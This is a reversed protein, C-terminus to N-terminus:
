KQQSYVMLLVEDYDSKLRKNEEELEAVRSRLSGADTELAGVRQSLAEKCRRLEECERQARELAGRLVACDDAAQPQGASGPQSATAAASCGRSGKDGGDPANSSAVDRKPEATTPRAPAEDGTESAAGAPAQSSAPTCLCGCSRSPCSCVAPCFFTEGINHGAHCREICVTCYLRAGAVGDCDVCRSFTQVRSCRFCFSGRAAACTASCRPSALSTCSGSQRMAVVARDERRQLTALCSSLFSHTRSGPAQESLRQRVVAVSEPMQVGMSRLSSSLVWLMNSSNELVSSDTPHNVMAETVAPVAGSKLLPEQLDLHTSVLRLLSTAWQQVQLTQPVARMASVLPGLGDYAVLARIGDSTCMGVLALIASHTLTPNSRHAALTMVAARVAGDSVAVAAGEPVSTSVRVISLLGRNQVTASKPFLELSSVITAVGGCGVIEAAVERTGGLVSLAELAYEHLLSSKITEMAKLIVEAGRAKQILPLCEPSKCLISLATVGNTQIGNSVHNRMASVIAGIAGSSSIVTSLDKRWLLTNCLILTGQSQVPTSLPYQAMKQVVAKIADCEVLKDAVGMGVIKSLVKAVEVDTACQQLEALVTSMSVSTRQRKPPSPLEAHQAVAPPTDALPRKKAEPAAACTSSRACGCVFPRFYVRALTHGAHCREICAACYEKLGDPGGCSLCRAGRQAVSCVCCYSDTASSCDNSCLVLGSATCLKPPAGPSSQRQLCELCHKLHRATSSTEVYKAFVEQVVESAGLDTARQWPTPTGPAGTPELVSSATNWLAGAANEIVLPEMKHEKMAGLICEIGGAQLVALQGEEEGTLNWLACCAHQQVDACQPHARMAAVISEVAGQCLISRVNGHFEAVCSLLCCAESVVLPRGGHVTLADLAPRICVSAAHKNEEPIALCCLASCAHEQLDASAPFAVMAAAIAPIAGLSAAQAQSDKSTAIVSLAGCACTIVAESKAHCRLAGVVSEVGGKAVVRARAHEDLSINWLAECASKNVLESGSHSRMAAVIAEVSGREAVSERGSEDAALNVLVDCAYSQVRDSGAHARMAGLVLEIGRDEVLSARPAQFLTVISLVPCAHEHLVQSEPFARMARLTAWLAGSLAVVKRAGEFACIGWLASCAAAQVDHSKKFAKMAALVTELANCNTARHAAESDVASLAYVLRCAGQAIKESSPHSQMAYLAAEVAGHRISAARFPPDGGVLATCGLYLVTPSSPCRRMAAVVASHAGHKASSAQKHAPLACFGELVPIAAAPEAAAALSAVLNKVNVM